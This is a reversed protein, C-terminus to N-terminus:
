AKYMYTMDSTAYKFYNTWGGVDLMWIDNVWNHGSMTDQQCTYEFVALRIPTWMERIHSPSNLRSMETHIIEGFSTQDVSDDGDFGSWRTGHVKSLSPTVKNERVNLQENM